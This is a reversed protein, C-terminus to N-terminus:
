DRDPGPEHRPHKTEEERMTARHSEEPVTLFGWSLAQDQTYDKGLTLATLAKALEFGLYFAHSPDLPQRAHMADFLVFPDAGTLHGAGNIAHLLGDEAFLRYNRDKIRGALERLEAEGHTHLKPDRLM